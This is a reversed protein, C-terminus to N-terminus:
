RILLKKLIDDTLVEFVYAIFIEPISSELTTLMIEADDITLPLEDNFIRKIRHYSLGTESALWKKSKKSEHLLRNIGRLVLKKFTLQHDLTSTM